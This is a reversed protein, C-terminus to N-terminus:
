LLIVKYHCIPPSNMLYKLQQNALRSEKNVTKQVLYIYILYSTKFLSASKTAVLQFQTETSRHGSVPGVTWGGYSMHTLISYSHFPLSLPFDIRRIDCMNQCARSRDQSEATRPRRSVAQAIVRASCPVHSVSM